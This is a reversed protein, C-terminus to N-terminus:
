QYKSYRFVDAKGTLVFWSKITRIKWKLLGKAEMPKAIVYKYYDKDGKYVSRCQISNELIDDILQIRIKM